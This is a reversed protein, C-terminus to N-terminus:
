RDLHEQLPGLLQPQEVSIGSFRGDSEAPQNRYASVICRTTVEYSAVLQQLVTLACDGLVSIKLLKGGVSIPAKLV